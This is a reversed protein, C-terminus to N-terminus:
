SFDDEERPEPQDEEHTTSNIQGLYYVVKEHGLLHTKQQNAM